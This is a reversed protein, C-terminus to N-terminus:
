PRVAVYFDTPERRAESTGRKQERQLIVGASVTRDKMQGPGTKIAGCVCVCVCVCVLVSGIELVAQACVLTNTLCFHRLILAATHTRLLPSSLESPPLFCARLQVVASARQFPM